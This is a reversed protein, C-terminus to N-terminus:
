VSYHMKLANKPKSGNGMLMKPPGQAVTHQKWLQTQSPLQLPTAPVQLNM